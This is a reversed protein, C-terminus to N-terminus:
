LVVSTLSSCNGRWNGKNSRNFRVLYPFSFSFFGVTLKSSIGCGGHPHQKRRYGVKGARLVLGSRKLSKEGDGEGGVTSGSDGSGSESGSFTRSVGFPRSGSGSGAAPAPASGAGSGSSVSVSVSSGAPPLCVMM